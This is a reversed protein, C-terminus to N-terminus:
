PPDVVEPERSDWRPVKCQIAPLNVKSHRPDYLVGNLEHRHDRRIRAKRFHFRLVHREYDRVRRTWASGLGDGRQLREYRSTDRWSDHFM